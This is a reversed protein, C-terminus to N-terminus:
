EFASANSEIASETTEYGESVTNILFDAYSDVIEKYNQFYKSAAANFKSRIVDHADSQWTNQLNNMQNKIELLQENMTNNLTKITAATSRVDGTSIRIGEGM